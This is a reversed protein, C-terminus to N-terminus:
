KQRREKMRWHALSIEFDHLDDGNLTVLRAEAFRETVHLIEGDIQNSLVAYAAVQIRASVEVNYTCKLDLPIGDFRFDLVGGYDDGGLLVQVEVTKFSQRDYWAKAKLFLDRSDNRTGAPIKALKGLVYAGFLADVESGRERASELVDAPIKPDLPFSASVIRGVSTLRRDGRFIRFHPCQWLEASKGISACDCPARDLIASM